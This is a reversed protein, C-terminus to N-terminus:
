RDALYRFEVRQDPRHAPRAAANDLDGRARDRGVGHFLYGGAVPAADKHAGGDREVVLLIRLAREAYEVGASCRLRAAVLEVDLDGTLGQREVERQCARVWEVAMPREVRDLGVVALLQLRHETIRAESVCEAGVQAVGLRTGHELAVPLTDDHRCRHLALIGPEGIARYGVDRALSPAIREVRQEIEPELLVEIGPQDAPEEISDFVPHLRQDFVLGSHDRQRVGARMQHIQAVGPKAEIAEAMPHALAASEVKRFAHAPQCAM